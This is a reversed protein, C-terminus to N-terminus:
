TSPKKPSNHEDRWEKAPAVEEGHGVDKKVPPVPTPKGSEKKEGEPEDSNGKKQM